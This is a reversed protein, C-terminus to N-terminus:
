QDWSIARMILVVSVAMVSMIIGCGTCLISGSEKEQEM